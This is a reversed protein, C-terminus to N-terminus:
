KKVFSEIVEDIQAKKEYGEEEFLFKYLPKNDVKEELVLDKNRGFVEDWKTRVLAWKNDNDKWWQAAAACRSDDVKVYTNYGKEKALLVDEKGDERIIKTNDQDHLWGYDTIEQRNGRMLLNYDSRTTYERRALPAPTKNEWYSKGDVHVWTASGEYRPSDDVQYVKQTWQGKVESAPLKEFTWENDANYTYLERNEFLWDQRWHKVVQPDAPNGVQLLHQISIKDDEDTVLQAWELAKDVKTKSPRYLSDNSYNFTEAFNFTVEYCGCMNKISERDEQKKSTQSIASISFLLALLTYLPTKM